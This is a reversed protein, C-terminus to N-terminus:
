YINMTPWFNTGTKILMRNICLLIRSTENSFVDFSGREIFVTSEPRGPRGPIYEVLSSGVSTEGM